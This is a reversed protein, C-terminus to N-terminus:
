SVATLTVATLAIMAGLLVGIGTVGLSVLWRFRQRADALVAARDADRLADREKRDAERLADRERGDAEFKAALDTCIAELRQFDERTAAELRQFDERTATELRQFDEKTALEPLPLPNLCSM